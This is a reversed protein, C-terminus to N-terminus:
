KKVKKLIDKAIEVSESLADLSEEQKCDIIKFTPIIQLKKDSKKLWIVVAVIGIFIAVIFLLTILTVLYQKIKSLFNLMDIGRGQRNM